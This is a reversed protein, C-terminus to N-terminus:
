HPQCVQGVELQPLGLVYESLVAQSTWKAPFALLFIHSNGSYWHWYVSWSLTNIENYWNYAPTILLRPLHIPCPSLEQLTGLASGPWLSYETMMILSHARKEQCLLSALSIWVEPESPAMFPVEHLYTLVEYLYTLKKKLYNYRHNHNIITFPYLTFDAFSFLCVRISVLCLSGLEGPPTAPSVGLEELM